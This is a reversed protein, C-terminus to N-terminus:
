PHVPEKNMRKLNNVIANISFSKEGRKLAFIVECGAMAYKKHAQNNQEEERDEADKEAVLDEVKDVRGQPGQKEGTHTETM